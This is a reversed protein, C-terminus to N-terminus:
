FFCNKWLSHCPSYPHFTEKNELFKNWKGLISNIEETNGVFEFQYPKKTKAIEESDGITKRKTNMSSSESESNTGSIM